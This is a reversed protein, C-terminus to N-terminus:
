SSHLEIDGSLNDPKRSSSAKSLRGVGAPGLTDVELLNVQVTWLTCYLQICTCLVCLGEVYHRATGRAPKHHRCQVAALATTPAAISGLTDVELFDVQVAWLMCYLRTCAHCVRWAKCLMIRQQDRIAPNQYFSLVDAPPGVFTAISNVPDTNCGHQPQGAM